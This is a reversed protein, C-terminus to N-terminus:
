WTPPLRALFTNLPAGAEDITFRRQVDHEEHMLFNRFRRIEHVSDVTGQPVKRRVAISSVLQTTVPRTNRVKARWFHRLISEFSAFMQVFYLDHFVAACSQMEQLTFGQDLLHPQERCLRISLEATSQAIEFNRKAQKMRDLCEVLRM